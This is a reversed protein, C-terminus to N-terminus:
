AIVARIADSLINLVDYREEVVSRAAYLASKIASPLSLVPHDTRRGFTIECALVYPLKKPDEENHREFFHYLSVREVEVGDITVSDVKERKLMKEKVKESILDAMLSSSFNDHDDALQCPVLVGNIKLECCPVVIIDWVPYGEKVFESAEKETNFFFENLKIYNYETKITFM